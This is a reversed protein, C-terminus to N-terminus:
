GPERGGDPAGATPTPASAMSWDGRCEEAMVRLSAHQHLSSDVAERGSSRGIRRHEVVGNGAPEDARFGNDGHQALGLAVASDIIESAAEGRRAKAGTQRAM